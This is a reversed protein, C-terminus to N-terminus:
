CSPTASYRKSASTFPSAWISVNRWESDNHKRAITENIQPKNVSIRSVWFTNLIDYGIHLGIQYDFKCCTYKRFFIEIWGHINGHVLTQNLTSKGTFTLKEVASRMPRCLGFETIVTSTSTRAHHSPMSLCQLLMRWYFKWTSIFKSVSESTTCIENFFDRLIDLWKSRQACLILM